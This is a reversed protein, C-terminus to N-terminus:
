KYLHEILLVLIRRNIEPLQDVLEKIVDLRKERDGIETDFVFLFTYQVHLHVYHTVPYIVHGDCSKSACEILQTHLAFTMLPEELQKGLYGKVASAITKTDWEQENTLNISNLKGRKEIADKYLKTAKSVIGPKRYIGEEDLGIIFVCLFM